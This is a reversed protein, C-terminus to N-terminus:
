KLINIFRQDSGEIYPNKETVDVKVVTHKKQFWRFLFFKRPEEITEKESYIIATLESKVLPKIAIKSPYELHINTNIWEDGINTDLLFNPEKFITDKLEITDSKSIRESYYQLQRIKNDKIKGEKKASILAKSISDNMQNLQDITLSLFRTKKTNSNIIDQYAKENATSIRYKARENKYSVYFYLAVSIFSLIILGQILIKKLM